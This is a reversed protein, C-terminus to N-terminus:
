DLLRRLTQAIESPGYPKTLIPAHPHSDTTNAGYGTAFAFPISRRALVDAVPASSSGNVNLDLLAADFAETSALSLAEEITSSPGCVDAGLDSLIDEIMMAIIPEDELVFIRRGTFNDTM